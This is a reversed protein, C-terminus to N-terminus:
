TGAGLSEVLGRLGRELVTISQNLELLGQMRATVDRNLPIPLAASIGTTILVHRHFSFFM